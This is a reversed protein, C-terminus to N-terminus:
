KEFADGPMLGKSSQTEHEVFASRTTSFIAALGGPSNPQGIDVVRVAEIRPRPPEVRVFSAARRFIGPALIEERRLRWPFELQGPSGDDRMMSPLVLDPGTVVITVPVDM